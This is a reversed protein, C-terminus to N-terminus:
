RKKRFPSNHNIGRELMEDVLDQHDKRAQELGIEKQYDKSHTLAHSYLLQKDTKKQIPVSTQKNMIPIGKTATKIGKRNLGHERSKGHYGRGKGAM